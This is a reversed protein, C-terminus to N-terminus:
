RPWKILQRGNTRTRGIWPLFFGSLFAKGRSVTLWVQFSGLVFMVKDTMLQAVMGYYNTKSRKYFAQRSAGNRIYFCAACSLISCEKLSPKRWQHVTACAPFRVQQLIQWRKAGDSVFVRTFLHDPFLWMCILSIEWQVSGGRGGAFGLYTVFWLQTDFCPLLSAMTLIQQIYVLFWLSM